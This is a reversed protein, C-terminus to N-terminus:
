EEIKMIGGTFHHFIVKTTVKKDFLTNSLIETCGFQAVPHSLSTYKVGTHDHIEIDTLVPINYRIGQTMKAKRADAKPDIVEDPLMEACKVSVYVPEGALDDVPLPGLKRSFRMLMQKDGQKTPIFNMTYVSTSTETTGKFMSEYATQQQELNNLMLQLQQGDKPTNDAEGRVLANYSERIDYIEQAVLEAMKSAAGAQLMERNMFKRPDTPLSPQTAEPLQPLREEAVDANIGLIIGERSLSVWPAATRGKLFISYAKSKDPIGYPQLEIGKIMWSVSEETPVDQLRMYKFAYKHFEGPRVIKKEVTLVVRFATQPLYYSVGEMTTGPVFEEVQTQAEASAAFSMGIM